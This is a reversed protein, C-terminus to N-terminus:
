FIKSLTKKIESIYNDPKIAYPLFIHDKEPFYAKPGLIELPNSHNYLDGEPGALSWMFDTTYLVRTGVGAFLNTLGGEGGIVLDLHKGLSAMYSYDYECTNTAGQHQNITPPLGLKVINFDKRLTYILEKIDYYIGTSQRSCRWTECIGIKPKSDTKSLNYQVQEDLSADTYVTYQTQPNFVGACQQHFVTLPAISEYPKLYRVEDYKDRLAHGTERTEVGIYESYYLVNDIYPNKELLRKPQPFGILFDVQSAQNEWKLREAIPQALLTDGIFGHVSILIKKM